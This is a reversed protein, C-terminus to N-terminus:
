KKASSGFSVEPRVTRAIAKPAVPSRRPDVPKEVYGTSPKMLTGGRRQAKSTQLLPRLQARCTAKAAAERGNTHRLLPLAPGPFATKPPLGIRWASLPLTTVKSEGLRSM